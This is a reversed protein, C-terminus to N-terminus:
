WAYTISFQSALSEDNFGTIFTVPDVFFGPNLNIDLQFGGYELGLGFNLAFDTQGMSKIESEGVKNTTNLYHMNNVGARVTAWELLNTEVAFTLNPLIISSSEITNKVEVEESLTGGMTKYEDTASSYKFGAAFLVDTSEGLAWHRYLDVGLLMASKSSYVMDEEWTYGDGIMTMTGPVNEGSMLNFSVLMHSFEWISQERRLNFGINMASPDDTNTNGDDSSATVLSMGIEGFGSNLGFGLSITNDSTQLQGSEYPNPMESSNLDVGLLLGWSGSGYAINIFNDSGSGMLFGYKTGEGFLFAASADNDNGDIQALNFNHMTAPFMYVNQNDEAWFGANGGLASIRQESAFSFSLLLLAIVYTNIKSIM